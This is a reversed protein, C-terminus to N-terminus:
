YKNIHRKQCKILFKNIINFNPNSPLNTTEELNRIKVELEESEKIIDEITYKGNKIDLLFDKHELPFKLDGTELLEIGEYLLRMLNMAFKTDFGYKVIYNEYRSSFKNISRELRKIAEKITINLPINRSGIVYFAGTQNKKFSVLDSKEFEWMYVWSPTYSKLIKITEVIKNYNGLKIVMKKKQSKAYGLFKNIINKSMFDKKISLLEEGLDNIFLINEKNVFLLEFMSPNNDKALRLFKKISIYKKDVADKTNKNNEDKDKLSADVDEVNNFGLIYEEDPIFISVYDKDSNKDNTGYLNSGCILDLIKNKEAMEIEYM